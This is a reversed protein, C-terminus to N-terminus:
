CRDAHYWINLTVPARRSARHAVDGPDPSEFLAERLCGWVLFLSGSLRRPPQSRRRPRLGRGGTAQTSSSGASSGGIIAAVVAGSARRAVVPRTTKMQETRDPRRSLHFSLCLSSSPL